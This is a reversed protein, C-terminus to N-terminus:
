GRRSVRHDAEMCEERVRGQHYYVAGFFKMQVKNATM